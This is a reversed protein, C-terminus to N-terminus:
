IEQGNSEKKRLPCEWGIVESPAVMEEGTIGCAIHGKRNRFSLNCWECCEKGNVFRIEIPVTYCTFDVSDPLKKHEM